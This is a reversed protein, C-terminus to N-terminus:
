AIPKKHAEAIRTLLDKPDEYVKIQQGSILTINCIQEETEISEIKDVFIFTAGSGQEVRIVKM